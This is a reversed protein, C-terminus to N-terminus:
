AAPRGGSAPPTARRTRPYRSRRLAGEAGIRAAGLLGIRDNSFRRAAFLLLWSSMGDFWQLDDLVLLLPSENAALGLLALVAGGLLLQDPSAGSGLGLAVTLAERHSDTMSPLHELLPMLVQHIAAYGVGAEFEVGSARQVQVGQRSAEDEAADLLASKGAGPEGILILSGGSASCDSVFETVVTLERDRGILSPSMKSGM